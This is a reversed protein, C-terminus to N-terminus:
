ELTIVGNSDVTQSPRAKGKNLLERIERNEQDKMKVEQEKLKLEMDLKLEMEM